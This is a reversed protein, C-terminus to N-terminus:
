HMSIGRVLRCLGTAQTVSHFISCYEHSSCLISGVSSLPDDNSSPDVFAQYGSCLHSLSHIEGSVHRVARITSLSRKRPLPHWGPERQRTVYGAQAKTAQHISKSSLLISLPVIPYFWVVSSSKSISGRPQFCSSCLGAAQSIILFVPVVLVGLLEISHNPCKRLGCLGTAHAARHALSTTSFRAARDHVGSMEEWLSPKLFIPFCDFHYHDHLFVVLNTIINRWVSFAPFLLNWISTSSDSFSFLWNLLTMKTVSFVVCLFVFFLFRSCATMDDDLMVIAGYWLAAAHKGPADTM